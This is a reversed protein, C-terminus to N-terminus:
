PLVLVRRGPQDGESERKKDAVIDSEVSKERELLVGEVSGEAIM